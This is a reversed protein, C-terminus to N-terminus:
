VRTLAGMETVVVRLTAALEDSDAVTTRQALEILAAM